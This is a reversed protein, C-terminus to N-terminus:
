HALPSESKLFYELLYRSQCQFGVPETSVNWMRRIGGHRQSNRPLPLRGTATSFEWTSILSSWFSDHDAMSIPHRLGNPIAASRNIGLGICANLTGSKMISPPLTVDEDVLLCNDTKSLGYKEATVHTYHAIILPEAHSSKM